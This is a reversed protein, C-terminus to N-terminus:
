ATGFYLDRFRQAWIPLYGIQILTNQYDDPSIVDKKTMARLEAESPLKAKTAGVSKIQKAFQAQEAVTYGSAALQQLAGQQDILGAQYENVIDTGLQKRTKTEEAINILEIELSAANADLGHAELLAQYQDQTIVGDQYATKAQALSLDHQAAATTAKATKSGKSAYEMLLVADPLSYGHQQLRQLAESETILGAKVMAPITRFPILPRQSDIWNAWLEQPVRDRFMAGEVDARQAMGRWYLNLWATAPLTNVSATWQKLIADDSLGDAKGADRVPPPISDLTPLTFGELDLFYHQLAYGYATAYNAPAYTLGKILDREADNWRNVAFTADVQAEDVDGRRWATLVTQIDLLQSTGERLAAIQPNTFGLDRLGAVFDDDVIVGRYLYDVLTSVDEVHTTLRRLLQSRTGNYGQVAMEEDMTNATILNRVWAQALTAPDLKTLPVIERVREAALESITDFPVKMIDWVAKVAEWPEALEIIGGLGGIGVAEALKAPDQVINKVAAAVDLMITNFADILKPLVTALTPESLELQGPTFTTTLAKPARGSVIEGLNQIHEAFGKQDRGLVYFDADTANHVRLARGARILENGISSLANSLDGPLRLLGQIGANIDREVAVIAAQVTTTVQAITRLIPDIHQQYFKNIDQIANGVKILIPGVTQTFFNAIGEGVTKIADYIVKGISEFAKVIDNLINGINTKLWDWLNRIWGFLSNSYGNIAQSIQNATDKALQANDAASKNIANTVADALPQVDQNVVNISQNISAIATAIATGGSSTQTVVVPPPQNIIPGPPVPPFPTPPPPATGTVSYIPNGNADYGIPPLAPPPLPSPPPAPYPIIPPPEITPLPELPPPLNVVDVPPIGLDIPAPPPVGAQGLLASLDINLGGYSGIGPISGIDAPAAGSLDPPAIGLDGM